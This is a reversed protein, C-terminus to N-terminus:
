QLSFLILTLDSKSVLNRIGVAVPESGAKPFLVRPEQQGAGSGTKVSSIGEGSYINGLEFKSLCSKVM